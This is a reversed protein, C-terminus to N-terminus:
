PGVTVSGADLSIEYYGNPNWPIPTGMQTVTGGTVTIRVYKGPVFNSPLTWAWTTSSGSTTKMASSIAEQGLWYSAVDQMRGIWVNGLSITHMVGATYDSLNVPQYAGDDNSAGNFGHVLIIRWGGASQASDVESDFDSEPASPPPIYCPLTYRDTSDNPMVLADAVGRNTMMMATPALGTYDSAGNPAAMTYPTINFTQQIYMTAANIDAVGGPPTSMHSKTHNGMENGDNAAQVWVSSNIEPTHGTWLYFTFPVGLGKLTPYAAIVSDNNDDFNYSVAAKFGAWNLVTLGGPSGSPQPTNGASGPPPPYGSPNNGSISGGTGTSGGGGAAGAAGASGGSGGGNAGQGVPASGCGLTVVAVFSLAGLAFRDRM